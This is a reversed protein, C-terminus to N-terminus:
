QLFIVHVPWLWLSSLMTNGQWHDSLRSFCSLLTSIPLSESFSNLIIITFIIWSRLFVISFICSINVLSRCSSFFLCVSTFLASSPISLLVVSASSRILSRSSLITSMVAASCFISFLIFLFSSLRLSRQSMLCVLMQLIPTGSPSFFPGSFINLSIIASFKGFMPSSITLWTWSACLMGPVIVGLLFVGLCMTILRVLILSLCLINFAALSFCCVVHLPIGMLTDASKEVSVRCGLLLHCSINLHYLFTGVVLFVRGLLVRRWIQHLFWFNELCASTLLIWCWWLLKVAFAWPIERPLFCSLLFLYASFLGLVILFITILGYMDIIIEFTFPNFAGVLLCLSALHIFVHAHICKWKCM